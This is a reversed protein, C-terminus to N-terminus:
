SRRLTSSLPGTEVVVGAPNEAPEEDTYPGAVAVGPSSLDVSWEVALDHAGGITDGLSGPDM